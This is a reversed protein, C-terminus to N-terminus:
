CLGDACASDGIKIANEAGCPPCTSRPLPSSARSSRLRISSADLNRISHLIVLWLAYRLSFFAIVRRSHDISDESRPPCTGSLPSRLEVVACPLTKLFATRTPLSLAKQNAISLGRFEFYNGKLRAMHSRVNRILSYQQAYTHFAHLFYAPHQVSIDITEEACTIAMSITPHCWSPHRRYIPPVVISIDRDRLLHAPRPHVLRRPCTM